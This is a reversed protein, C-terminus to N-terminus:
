RGQGLPTSHGEVGKGQWVDLESPLTCVAYTCGVLAIRDLDVHLYCFGLM